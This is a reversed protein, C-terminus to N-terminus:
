GVIQICTVPLRVKRFFEPVLDYDRALAKLQRRKTSVSVYVDLLTSKVESIYLLNNIVTESSFQNILISTCLKPPLKFNQNTTADISIKTVCVRSRKGVETWSM